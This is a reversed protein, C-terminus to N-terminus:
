QVKRDSYYVPFGINAGPPVKQKTKLRLMGSNESDPAGTFLRWGVPLQVRAQIFSLLLGSPRRGPGSSSSCPVFLDGSKHIRGVLM